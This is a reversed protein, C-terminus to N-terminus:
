GGFPGDRRQDRNRRCGTGAFEAAESDTGRHQTAPRTAFRGFLPSVAFIPSLPNKQIFRFNDQVINLGIGIQFEVFPFDIV